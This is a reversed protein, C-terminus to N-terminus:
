FFTKSQIVKKDVRKPLPKPHELELKLRPSPM